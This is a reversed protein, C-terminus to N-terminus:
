RRERGCRSDGPLTPADQEPEVPERPLHKQGQEPANKERAVRAGYPLIEIDAAASKPDVRGGFRRHVFSTHITL